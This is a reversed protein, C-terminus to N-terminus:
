KEDHQVKSRRIYIEIIRGDSLDIRMPGNGHGCCSARMNIGADQLALVFPAVCKDIKVVKWFASGTHSLDADIHVNIYQVAVCPCPKPEM